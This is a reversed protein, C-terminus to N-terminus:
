AVTTRRPWPLLMPTRARYEKYDEGLFHALDKEEIPIAILMYLTLGVAFLLHGYTM